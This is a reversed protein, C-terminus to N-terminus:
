IDAYLGITITQLQDNYWYYYPEYYGLESLIENLEACDNEFWQLARQYDEGQQFRVRLCNSKEEYQRRFM